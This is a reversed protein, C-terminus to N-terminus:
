VQMNSLAPVLGTINALKLLMKQSFLYFKGRKTENARSEEIQRKVARNVYSPNESPILSSVANHLRSVQKSSRFPDQTTTEQEVKCLTGYLLVGIDPANVHITTDWSRSAGAAARCSGNGMAGSRSNARGSRTVVDGRRAEGGGYGERREAGGAERQAMMAKGGGRGGRESMTTADHGVSREGSMQTYSNRGSRIQIAPNKIRVDTALGSSPPTGTRLDRSESAARKCCEWRPEKEERTIRRRSSKDQAARCVGALRADPSANGKERGKGQGSWEVGSGRAQKTPTGSGEQGRYGRKPGVGERREQARVGKRTSASWEREGEDSLDAELDAKM